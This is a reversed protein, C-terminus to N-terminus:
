KELSWHIGVVFYNSASATKFLYFPVEFNKITIGFMIGPELNVPEKKYKVTQLAFGTYFLNSPQISLEAWNYFFNEAANNFRICYEPETYLSFKGVEIEALTGVSLGQFKGALLGALPTLSYSAIGEKSFTKGFQFSFTQSEEYNYRFSAYWNNKTEFYALPVIFSQEDRYMYYEQSVGYTKQAFCFLM